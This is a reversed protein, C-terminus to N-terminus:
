EGGLAVFCHDQQYETCLLMCYFDWCVALGGRVDKQSCSECAIETKYPPILKVWWLSNKGKEKRVDYPLFSELFQVMNVGRIQLCSSFDPQSSNLFASRSNTLHQIWCTRCCFCRDESEQLFTEGLLLRTGSHCTSLDRKDRGADTNHTSVPHMREQRWDCQRKERFVSMGTEMRAKYDLEATFFKQLNPFWM